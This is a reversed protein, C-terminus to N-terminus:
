ECVIYNGSLRGEGALIDAIENGMVGSHGKCWHFLINHKPFKRYEELGEKLLDVNKKGAFKEKEWKFAWSTFINVVYESDSYIHLKFSKDKIEKMAEIVARLEMRNNTTNSYGRSVIKEFKGYQIYIGLGGLKDKYSASGDTYIVITKKDMVLKNPPSTSLKIDEIDGKRRYYISTYELNTKNIFRTRTAETKFTKESDVWWMTGGYDCRGIWSEYQYEVKLM